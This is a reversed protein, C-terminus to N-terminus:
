KRVRPAMMEAITKPTTSTPAGVDLWCEARTYLNFRQAIRQAKEAIDSRADGLYTTDNDLWVIIGHEAAPHQAFHLLATDSLDAGYLAGACYGLNALYAADAFSEVIFAPVGAHRPNAWRAGWPAAASAGLMAPPEHDSQEWRETLYKPYHRAGPGFQRGQYGVLRPPAGRYIPVCLEVAHTFARVRLAERPAHKHNLWDLMEFAGARLRFRDFPAHLTDGDPTSQADWWRRREEPVDVIELPKRAAPAELADLAARGSLRSSIFGEGGCHWCHLYWGGPTAAVFLRRKRDTGAPCEPHNIRAVNAVGKVAERLEAAIVLREAM